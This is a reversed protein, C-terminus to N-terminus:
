VSFSYTRRSPSSGASATVADDGVGAARWAAVVPLRGALRVVKM